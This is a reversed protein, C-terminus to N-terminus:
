STYSYARKCSITLILHNESLSAWRTLKGLVHSYTSQKNNHENTHILQPAKQHHDSSAVAPGPKGGVLKLCRNVLGVTRKM